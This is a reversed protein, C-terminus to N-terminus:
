LYIEIAYLAVTVTPKLSMDFRKPIFITIFLVIRNILVARRLLNWPAASRIFSEVLWFAWWGFDSIVLYADIQFGEEITGFDERYVYDSRIIDSETTIASPEMWQGFISKSLFIFFNYKLFNM